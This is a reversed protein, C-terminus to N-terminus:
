GFRRGVKTKVMEDMKILPPGPRKFVEGPLKQTACIDLKSGIAIEGIAHDLVDSRTM